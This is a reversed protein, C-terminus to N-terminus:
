DRLVRVELLLYRSEEDRPISHALVPKASKRAITILGLGAGGRETRGESSLLRLFHEKMDAETMQNIVDTRHLLLEATAAPLANGAILRYAGPEALLLAFSTHALEPDAHVRINELSEVLVNLLRKRAVVGDSSALSHAEVRRVMGEIDEHTIAGRHQLVVEDGGGNIAARLVREPWQAGLSESEPLRTLVVPQRRHVTAINRGNM